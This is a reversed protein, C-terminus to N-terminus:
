LLNLLNEKNEFLVVELFIQLSSKTKYFIYPSGEFFPSTQKTKKKKLDCGDTCQLCLNTKPDLSGHVLLAKIGPIRFFLALLPHSKLGIKPKCSEKRRSLKTKKSIMMLRHKALLLDIELGISAAAAPLQCSLETSAICLHNAFDISMKRRHKAGNEVLFLTDRVKLPFFRCSLFILCFPHAEKTKLSFAALRANKLPLSFKSM